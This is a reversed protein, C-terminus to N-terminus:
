SCQDETPTNDSSNTADGHYRPDDLRSEQVPNPVGAGSRKAQPRQAKPKELRVRMYCRIFPFNSPVCNEWIKRVSRELFVEKIGLTLCM